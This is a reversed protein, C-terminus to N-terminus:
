RSATLRVATTYSEGTIRSRIKTVSWLRKRIWFDHSEQVQAGGHFWDYYNRSIRRYRPKTTYRLSFPEKTSSGSLVAYWVAYPFAPEARLGRDPVSQSVLELWSWNQTDRQWRVEPAAMAVDLPVSFATDGAERGPRLLPRTTFSRLLERLGALADSTRQSRHTSNHFSMVERIDALRKDLHVPRVDQGALWDAGCSERFSGTIFSKDNNLRFGAQKAVEIFLLAASQRLIIDDGYVSFDYPHTLSSVTSVAYSISAFILTELPFCFGNGMSCFKQYPLIEDSGPLMYSPSRIENLFAFWAPPMLDRVIELSITDSASKLDLTVYPNSHGLSGDRALAQNKGQDSLDIGKRRLLSRLYQDTGKQIWGNLLPEVAMSRSTYATKPVFCIKNYLQRTYKAEVLDRFAVEDYCKIDGPIIIDRAQANAWLSSVAYHLATPTCSWSDSMFKRALNTANGHVGVSAGGSFNCQDYIEPLNPQEGVVNRIYARAREWFPAYPDYRKRYARRRRNVWLCRHEAAKFSKVATEEPNIGPIESSSFPYKRILAVIQAEAFYLATDHVDTRRSEAWELLKGFQKARVHGLLHDADPHPLSKLVCSLVKSYAKDPTVTLSLKPGPKKQIYPM